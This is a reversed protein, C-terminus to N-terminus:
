TRLVPTPLISRMLEGSCARHFEGVVNKKGVGGGVGIAARARMIQGLVQPLDARASCGAGGSETSGVPGPEGAQPMVEAFVAVAELAVDAVAGVGVDFAAHWRLVFGVRCGARQVGDFCQFATVAGGAFQGGRHEGVEDGPVVGPQGVPVAAQFSAEGRVVGAAFVGVGPAGCGGGDEFGVDREAQFVSHGAANEGGAGEGQPQAHQERSEDIGVEEVGFGEHVGAFGVGAAAERGEGFHVTGVVGVHGAKGGVRRHAPNAGVDQALAAALGCGRRAQVGEGDGGAATFGERAQAERQIVGEGVAFPADDVGNGVGADDLLGGVDEAIDEGRQAAFADDFVVALGFAIGGVFGAGRAEGAFVPVRREDDGGVHLEEFGEEGGAGGAAALQVSEDAAHQDEVFGLLQRGFEQLGDEIDQAEQDAVVANGDHQAGGGLGCQGGGVVEVWRHAQATEVIGGFEHVVRVGEVCGEFADVNAKRGIEGHGGFPRGQGVFKGVVVAHEGDDVGAAAGAFKVSAHGLARQVERRQHAAGVALIDDVVDLGAEGRASVAVVCRRQPHDAGLEDFRTDIQIKRHHVACQGPQIGDGLGCPTAVPFACQRSHALNDDKHWGAFYGGAGQAFAGFDAAAHEVALDAIREIAAEECGVELLEVGADAEILVADDLHEFGGRGAFVREGHLKAAGGVFEAQDGIVLRLDDDEVAALFALVFRYVDQEAFEFFVARFAPQHAGQLAVGDAQRLLM